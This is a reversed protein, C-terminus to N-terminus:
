QVCHSAPQAVSAGTRTWSSGIIKKGRWSDEMHPLNLDGECLLFPKKHFIHFKFIFSRGQFGHM